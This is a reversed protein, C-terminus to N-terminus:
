FSLRSTQLQLYTTIHAVSILIPWRGSKYRKIENAILGHGAIYATQQCTVEVINIAAKVAEDSIVGSVSCTELAFLVHLVGAVRLVHGRSKSLM